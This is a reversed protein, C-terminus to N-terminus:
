NKFYNCLENDFLLNSITVNKLPITEHFILNFEDQFKFSLDPSTQACVDSWDFANLRDRFNGGFFSNLNRTQKTPYTTFSFPLKTCQLVAYRDSLLATVIASNIPHKLNSTWINDPLTM